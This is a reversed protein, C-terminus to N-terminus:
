TMIEPDQPLTEYQAGQEDSLRSTGRGAEGEKGRHGDGPKHM